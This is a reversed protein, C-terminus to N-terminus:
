QPLPVREIEDIKRIDISIVGDDQQPNFLSEFRAGWVVENAKYSSRTHVTQSFTEDFGNLLILFEAESARLDAESKGWLPSAQDIPHVITWALPFFVVSQRELRLPVFEREASSAGDRKRRSVIVTAQLQVIENSKQNLIRFEFATVGRYPAIIANRSFVIQATPRSFRAFVLGGMVAFGLLGILSEITVFLNAALSLPAVNGYGITALTQVSFFFAALFREGLPKVEFNSLAHPGCAVYAVAFVANTVIYFACVFGLFQPWSITLSYHYLNLRAWPSLGERRVNFTGDRNLFRQRSEQAVVEGFGLDHQPVDDQRPALM